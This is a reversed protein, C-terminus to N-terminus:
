RFKQANAKAANTLFTIEAGATAYRAGLQIMEKVLEPQQGMGGVGFFIGNADCAEAVRRYAAKLKGHEPQGPLGLANSLDNAGILLMDLGEVAAIEEVAELADLSEIMAIVMTAANIAQMAEANPTSRFMLQPLCPMVSRKGLPPFKAAAVAAKMEEATEIGPIIVGLAGCDFAQGIAIADPQAVRVLPTLGAMNAALCVQTTTELSFGNHELDVFLVDFGATKAIAVIEVGRILRNIMGVALRGSTMTDRLPNSITLVADTM